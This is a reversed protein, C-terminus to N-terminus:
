RGELIRNIEEICERRTKEIVIVIRTSRDRERRVELRWRNGYPDDGIVKWSEPLSLRMTPPETSLVRYWRKDDRCLNPWQLFQRYEVCRADGGTDKDLFHRADIVAEPHLEPVVGWRWENLKTESM